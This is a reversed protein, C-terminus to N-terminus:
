RSRSRRRAQFMPFLPEGTKVRTLTLVALWYVGIASITLPLGMTLSTEVAPSVEMPQWKGPSVLGLMVLPKFYFGVAFLLHYLAMGSAPSSIYLAQRYTERRLRKRQLGAGPESSRM